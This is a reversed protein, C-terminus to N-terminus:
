LLPRWAERQVAELFAAVDANFREAARLHAYAGYRPYVSLGANPMTQALFRSPEVCLEDEDGCVILAPLDVAALAAAHDLISPRRMQVGRITLAAAAADHSALHDVFARGAAADKEALRCRSPRRAYREAVARSGASEFETALAAQDALFGAAHEPMAGSGCGAITLSRVQERHHLGMQVAVSGGMSLGALHVPGLELAAILASCDAVQQAQSYAAPGEPVESGPYGRASYTVCTFRDRFAAVQPAWSRYDGAFEHVFLLPPGSGAREYYLAIGGADIRPM